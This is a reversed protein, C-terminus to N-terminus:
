TVERRQRVQGQRQESEAFDEVLAFDARARFYRCLESPLRDGELGFLAQRQEVARLEHARVRHPAEQFAAAQGLPRVVDASERQVGVIAADLREQREGVLEARVLALYLGPLSEQMQKFSAFKDLSVLYM